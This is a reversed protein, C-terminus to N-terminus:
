VVYAPAGSRSAAAAAIGLIILTGLSGVSILALAYEGQAWEFDLFIVTDFVASFSLAAATFLIARYAPTAGEFPALRLADAGPRMLLLISAAYGLFILILAVDIAGRWTWTLICVIAAPIAHLGIRLQWPRSAARVLRLVGAYALPPVIAALTPAIYGVAHVGYGWRLGSLVSQLSAILILALFPRNPSADGDRKAVVVFVIFLLIAVVFPLPIFLM